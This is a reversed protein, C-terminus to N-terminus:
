ADDADDDPYAGRHQGLYDVEHVQGDGPDLFASTGIVLFGGEDHSGEVLCDVVNSGAALASPLTRMPRAM